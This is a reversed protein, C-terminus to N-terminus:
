AAKNGAVGGTAAPLEEDLTLEAEDLRAQCICADTGAEPDRAARHETPGQPSNAPEGTDVGSGAAIGADAESIERRGRPNSETAEVERQAQQAAATPSDSKKERAVARSLYDGVLMEAFGAVFAVIIAMHVGDVSALSPGEEGGFQVNVVQSRVLSFLIIASVVGIMIRLIADVLNDRRQMDPRLERRRIGIAISFLAGLSGFGAALFLKNFAIFTSLSAFQNRLESAIGGSAATGPHPLPGPAVRFTSLLIFFLFVALATITATALYSARGISEQEEAIDAKLANLLDEAGAQDGQLAVTLADATRRDFVGTTGARRGSKRWDDLMGDIRGRLPNLPTLARRQELMLTDDDAFQVKVRKPTGYVAYINGARSYVVQIPDGMGDTQGVRIDSVADAFM